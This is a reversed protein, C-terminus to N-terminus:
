QINNSTRNKESYIAEEFDKMKSMLKMGGLTPLAELM